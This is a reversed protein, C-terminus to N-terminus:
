IRLQILTLTITNWAVRLLIETINHHDTKNTSSVQSFWRGALLRQCVKIVYQQISYVEGSRSEFECRKQHYVSCQILFLFKLCNNDVIWSIDVIGEWRLENCVYFSWSMITSIWTLCPPLTLSTRPIGVKMEQHNSGGVAICIYVFSVFDGYIQKWEFYVM